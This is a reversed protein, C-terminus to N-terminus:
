KHDRFLQTAFEVFNRRWVMWTHSGPTEVLSANVHVSQLWAVLERNKNIRDDDVGCAIWLLRLRQNASQNLAPFAEPFKYPISGSSFSGIWAFKDLHNLGTLLSEAGGMSLGAIARTNRNRTVSYQHEVRPIVEKLLAERFDHMSQARLADSVGDWGHRVMEMTGYGLPMVVIMPKVKHQAIMNDLILNARGISTWASADDSFGHLLYLIPYTKSSRRTYGPPTYVYYDRDDSASTSHYFHHHVSGHPVDTLEWLLPASGVVHVESQPEIYSPKIHPNSPDLLHEGDMFFSYRYYDPELPMTTFSWVGDAVKHMPVSEKQGELKISVEKAGAVRFRFTVSRDAHIEPSVTPSTAPQVLEAMVLNLAGYVYLVSVALSTWIIKLKTM